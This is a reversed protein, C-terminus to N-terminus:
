RGPKRIRRAASKKSAEDSAELEDLLRRFHAIEDATFRKGSVLAHVLPTAAGDCLDVELQSLRQQLHEDRSVTPRYTHAVDGKTSTM